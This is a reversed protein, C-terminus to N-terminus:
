SFLIICIELLFNNDASSLFFALSLNVLVLPNEVLLLKEVLASEAIVFLGLLIYPSFTLNTLSLKSLRKNLFSILGLGLNFVFFVLSIVLLNYLIDSKTQL